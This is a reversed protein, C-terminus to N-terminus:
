IYISKKLYQSLAKGIAFGRYNQMASRGSEIMKYAQQATIVEVNIFEDPDRELSEPSLQTALFVHMCESSYGPVMYFEGIKKLEGATMGIEEKLERAAAEIPPEDEELTGAPLELLVQRAAHRYQRVFWIKGENDYPAHNSSRINYL